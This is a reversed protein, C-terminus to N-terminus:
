QQRKCRQQAARLRVQVVENPLGHELRALALPLVQGLELVCPFNDSRQGSLVGGELLGAALQYPRPLHQVQYVLM